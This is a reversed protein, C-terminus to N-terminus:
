ICRQSSNLRTSKRDGDFDYLADDRRILDDLDTNMPLVKSHRRAVTKRCMEAYDTVWPGANAARSRARIKNIQAVTMVERSKQGDKLIAISYAAVVDGADGDICPKHLIRPENGLEYTFEDHSYVVYCDWTSIEGSQRDKKRLGAVMPMWQAIMGRKNDNFPVLAGERGDPVLGDTAAQVCSTFLSRRDVLALKPNLQVATRLVRMFREVPIHKPLVAEFQPAQRDMEDHLDKLSVKKPGAPAVQQLSGIDTM